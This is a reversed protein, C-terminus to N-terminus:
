LTFNAPNWVSEAGAGGGLLFAVTFLHMSFLGLILRICMKVITVNLEETSHLPM